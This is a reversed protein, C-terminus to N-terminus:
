PSYLMKLFWNGVKGGLYVWDVVPLFHSLLLPFSGFQNSAARMKEWCIMYYSSGLCINLILLTMMKHVPFHTINTSINALETGLTIRLAVELFIVKQLTWLHWQTVQYFM